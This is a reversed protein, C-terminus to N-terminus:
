CPLCLTSAPSTKREGERQSAGGRPAANAKGGEQTPDRGLYENDWPGTHTEWPASALVQPLMYIDTQERLFTLKDKEGCHREYRM